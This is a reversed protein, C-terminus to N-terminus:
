QCASVPPAALDVAAPPPAGDDFTVYTQGLQSGVIRVARPTGDAVVCGGLGDETAVAGPPVVAVPLPEALRLMGPIGSGAVPQAEGVAAAQAPAAALSPLGALTALAAPDVIQGSEDVPLSVGDVVVVRTGPALREPMVMVQAGLLPAAGIAIADGPAVDAGLAVPCSAVTVQPTPLWVVSSLRIRSADARVGARGFVEAAAALTARGVREGDPAIDFGLRALEAQLADVDVGQSGRTLDRWWPVGGALALVPVGDVGMVATGSELVEGPGCGLATVRGTVPVRVSVADGRTVELAVPREDDFEVSTVPAASMVPGPAAVGPAVPQLVLVAVLGGLPGVAVVSLLVVLRLYRM